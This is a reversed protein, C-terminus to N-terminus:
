MANLKKFVEVLYPLKMALLSVFPENQYLDIYGAEKLFAHIVEHRITYPKAWEECTKDIVIKNDDINCIGDKGYEGFDKEIDGYPIFEYEQNLINIKM